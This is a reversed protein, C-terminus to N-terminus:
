ISPQLHPEMEDWHSRPSLVQRSSCVFSLSLLYRFSSIIASEFLEPFVKSLNTSVFFYQSSNFVVSDTSSTFSKSDIHQCVQSILTTLLKIVATVETLAMNPLLFQMIVCESTEYILIEVIFQVVCALVYIRQWGYGRELGRLLSFYIFIFNLLVVVIWALYKSTKTVVLSRRFSRYPFTRTLPCIVFLHIYSM